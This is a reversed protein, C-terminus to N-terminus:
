DEPCTGVERPVNDKCCKKGGGVEYTKVGCCQRAGGNSHYPYRYPYIGCCQDIQGIHVPGLVVEFLLRGLFLIHHCFAGKFRGGEEEEKGKQSRVRKKPCGKKSRARDIQM